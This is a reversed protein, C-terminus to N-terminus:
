YDHRVHLARPRGVAVREALGGVCAGHSEGALVAARGAEAFGVVLEAARLHVAAEWVLRRREPLQLPLFVM